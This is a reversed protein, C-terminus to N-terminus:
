EPINTTVVERGEFTGDGDADQIREIQNGESVYLWGDHWEVGHALNMNKAIVDVKEAVGDGDADTLRSVQNGGEEAVYLSGDDGVTMLRPKNFKSGFINIKFGDPVILRSAADKTADQAVLVFVTLFVVLLVTGLIRRM